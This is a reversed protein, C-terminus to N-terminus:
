FYVRMMVSKFCIFHIYKKEINFDYTNSVNVCKIEKEDKFWLLVHVYYLSVYFTM